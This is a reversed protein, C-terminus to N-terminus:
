VCFQRAWGLAADNGLFGLDGLHNAIRERELLLARLWRARAPPTIVAASEVAMAYAWAYAVTSDGSVRGALRAGEMVTM